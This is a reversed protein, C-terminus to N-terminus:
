QPWAQRLLTTYTQLLDQPTHTRLYDVVTQHGGLIRPCVNPLLETTRGAGAGLFPLAAHLRGSILHQHRLLLTLLRLPDHDYLPRHGAQVLRSREHSSHCILTSGPHALHAALATAQIEPVDSTVIATHPGATAPDAKASLSNSPSNKVMAATAPDAQSSVSEVSPCLHPVPVPVAESPDGCDRSLSHPTSYKYFTALTAPCPLHHHPIRHATLHESTIQDRVTILTATQLAFEVWPSTARQIRQHSQSGLGLMLIPLQRQTFYKYLRDNLNGWAPTGAIVLADYGELTDDNCLTNSQTNDRGSSAKSLRPNRDYVSICLDPGYAAELIALVGYRIFDDGPNWTQTTSLLLNM